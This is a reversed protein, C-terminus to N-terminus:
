NSRFRPEVMGHGMTRGMRPPAMHEQLPKRPVYPRERPRRPRNGLTQHNIQPTNHVPVPLPPPPLRFTVVNRGWDQAQLLGLNFKDVESLDTDSPMLTPLSSYMPHTAQFPANDPIDSIRLRRKFQSQVSLSTLLDPEESDGEGTMKKYEARTMTKEGGKPGRKVRMTNDVATVGPGLSLLDLMNPPSKLVKVFQRESNPTSKLVKPPPRLPPLQLKTPSLPIEPVTPLKFQVISPEPLARAKVVQINGEYDYTFEGKKLENGIKEMRKKEELRKQRAIKAKEDDIQKQKIEQIKKTRLLEIEPEAPPYLLAELSYPQPRILEPEHFTFSTDSAKSHSTWPSSEEKGVRRRVQIHGRAWSDSPTPTPDLDSDYPIREGLDIRQFEMEMVTALFGLLMEIATPIVLSDVRREAVVRFTAEIVDELVVAATLVAAHCDRSDMDVLALFPFKSRWM